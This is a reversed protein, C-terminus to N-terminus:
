RLRLVVDKDDSRVFSQAISNYIKATNALSTNFEKLIDDLNDDFKKLVAAQAAKEVDRRVRAIDIKAASTTVEKLVTERIAAYETEIAITVEQHINRRMDHIARDTAKEVARKAGDAVAREIASNVISEPIDIGVDSALEDISRDLRDSIQALKTHTGIAYGVGVLGAIVGLVGVITDVDVTRKSM